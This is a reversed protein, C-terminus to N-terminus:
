ALIDLVADELKSAVRIVAAGAKIQLEDQKLGVFGDVLTDSDGSSIPSSIQEAHKAASSFGAKIGALGSAAISNPM